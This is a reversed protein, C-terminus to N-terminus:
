RAPAEAIKPPGEPTELPPRAAIFVDMQQGPYGPLVHPDFAYVVRLVRTDVRENGAGTLSTKPVVIPDVRVFRLEARRLAAGRLTGWARAGPAFRPVDAEDIDIRVHLPDLVGLIMLPTAVAQAPAYEGARVNTQLVTADLPARVTLLDLTVAGARLQAEASALDARASELRAEAMRVAYRRRTLTDDSIALGPSPRSMREGRDLQDRLDALTTETESARSRAAELAAARVALDARAARDDITFLVDGAHVLAGPQVAVSTVVGAAQAAIGVQESAAEVLGVAGIMGAQAARDRAAQDQAVTEPAPQVPPLTGPAVLGQEPQHHAISYAAAAFAVLAVGPILVSFIRSRAM